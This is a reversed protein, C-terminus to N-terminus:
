KQIYLKGTQIDISFDCPECSLLSNNPFRCVFGVEVKLMNCCVIKKLGSHEPAWSWTSKVGGKEAEVIWPVLM